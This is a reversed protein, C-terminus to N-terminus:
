GGLAVTRARAANLQAVLAARAAALVGADAPSAPAANAHVADAPIVPCTTNSPAQYATLNGPDCGIPQFPIPPALPAGSCDGTLWVSQTVNTESCGVRYSYGGGALCARTLISASIPAGSPPCTNPPEKYFNIVVDDAAPTFAGPACELLYTFGSPDTEICGFDSTDAHVVPTGTCAGNDFKLVNAASKNICQIEIGYDYPPLASTLCSLFQGTTVLVPGTCARAAYLSSRIFDARALALGLLGIFLRVM